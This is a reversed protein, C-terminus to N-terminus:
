TPQMPRHLWRQAMREQAHMYYDVDVYALSIAHDENPAYWFPSAMM